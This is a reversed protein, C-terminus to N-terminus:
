APDKMLTPISEAEDKTMMGTALAYKKLTERIKHHIIERPRNEIEQDRIARYQVPLFQSLLTLPIIFTQLNQLLRNLAAQVFPQPWYYRVRDSFSFKRALAQRAEDGHYHKRWYKPNELMSQELTERIQSKRLGRHLKALEEEVFSLAFVAERLAFTLAPGVKLIAFHDEVMQRLATQTQYDTSHAEYVFASQTEIFDKLDVAKAREYETVKEIGFEVGPQVVVAIVRQWAKELNKKLFADHTRQLVESVDNVSTVRLNALTEMAGGPIPVDTGIVYVPKPLNAPMEKSAEEAAACLEASRRAALEADLPAYKKVEDGRLSMSADLHIKTFGAKVYANIQEKANEMAVEPELNRWVNPGLHDGGLILREAPLGRRIAIRRVFRGFDEPKMGTYGGFQDVQNSTAEVLLLSDDELAQQVAAELVFPNASCVSYIGSVGDKKHKRVMNKVPHEMMRM